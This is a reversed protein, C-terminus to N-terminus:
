LARPAHTDVVGLLRRYVVTIAERRGRDPSIAVLVPARLPRPPPNTVM